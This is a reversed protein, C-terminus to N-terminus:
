AQHPRAITASTPAHPLSPIPKRRPPPPVLPPDRPPAPPAAPAAPFRQVPVTPGGFRLRSMRKRISSEDEILSDCVLRSLLKGVKIVDSCLAGCPSGFM